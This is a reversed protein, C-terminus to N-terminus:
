ESESLQDTALRERLWKLQGGIMYGMGYGSWLSFILHISHIFRNGTLSDILTPNESLFQKGGNFDNTWNDLFPLKDIPVSTDSLEIMLHAIRWQLAELNNNSAPFGLRGHSIASAMGILGRLHGRIATYYYICCRERQDPNYVPALSPVEFTLTYLVMATPDGIGIEGNGNGNGSNGHNNYSLLIFREYSMYQRALPDNTSMELLQNRITTLEQRREPYDGPDMYKSELLDGIRTLDDNYMEIATVVMDIDHDDEVKHDEFDKLDRRWEALKDRKKQKKTEEDDNDDYIYITEIDWQDDNDNSINIQDLYKLAQDRKFRRSTYSQCNEMAAAARRIGRHYAIRLLPRAADQDFQPCGNMGTGGVYMLMYVYLSLSLPVSLLPSFSDISYRNVRFSIILLSTILGGV